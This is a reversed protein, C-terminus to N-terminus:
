EQIQAVYELTPDHAVIPCGDVILDAREWPRDAAFFDDEEAMWRRWNRLAGAGDRRLGRQLRVGAPCGVFVRLHYAQAFPLRTSSVGEIIVPGSPPLLVPRGFMSLDWDWPRYRVPRGALLPAIVERRLREANLPGGGDAFDDTHVISCGGAIQGLRMAFTSKGSGGHGDIGVLVMGEGDARARIDRGLDAFRGVRAAGAPLRGSPCRPPM